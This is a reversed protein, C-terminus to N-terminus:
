RNDGPLFITKRQEEFFFIIYKQKRILRAGFKQIVALDTDRFLNNKKSKAHVIRFSNLGNLEIAPSISNM